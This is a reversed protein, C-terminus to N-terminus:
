YSWEPHSSSVRRRNRLAQWPSEASPRLHCLGTRTIAERLLVRAPSLWLARPLLALSGFLGAVTRSVWLPRHWRLPSLGPPPANSSLAVRFQFIAPLDTKGELHHIWTTMASDRRFRASAQGSRDKPALLQTKLRAQLKRLWRSLCYSNRRCHSNQSGSADCRWRCTSRSRWGIATTACWMCQASTVSRPSASGSVARFIARPQANAMKESWRFPRSLWGAALQDVLPPLVARLVRASAHQGCEEWAVQALALELRTTANLFAVM